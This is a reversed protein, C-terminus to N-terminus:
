ADCGDIAVEFCHNLLAPQNCNLKGGFRGTKLQGSLRVVMVEQTIVTFLDKFQVSARRDFWRKWSAKTGKAV